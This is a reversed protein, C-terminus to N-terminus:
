AKVAVPDVPVDKEREIRTGEARALLSDERFLFRNCATNRPKDLRVAEVYAEAAEQTSFRAVVREDPGRGIRFLNERSILRYM